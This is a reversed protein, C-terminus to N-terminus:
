SGDAVIISELEHQTMLGALRQDLITSLESVSETPVGGTSLVKVMYDMRDRIRRATDLATQQNRDRVNKMMQQTRADLAM